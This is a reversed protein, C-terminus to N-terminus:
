LTLRPILRILLPFASTKLGTSVENSPYVTVPVEAGFAIISNNASSSSSPLIKISLVMALALPLKEFLILIAPTGPSKLKVAVCSEAFLVDSNEVGTDIGGSAGCFRV